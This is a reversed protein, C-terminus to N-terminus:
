AKKVNKSPNITSPSLEPQDQPNINGGLIKVIMNGITGLKLTFGVVNKYPVDPDFDATMGMPALKQNVYIQLDNVIQRAENPNSLLNGEPVFQLKIGKKTPNSNVEFRVKFKKNKFPFDYTVEETLMNMMERKIIEKLKDKQEKDTKPKNSKTIPQKKLQVLGTKEDWGYTKSKNDKMKLKKIRM